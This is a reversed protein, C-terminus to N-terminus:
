ISDLGWLFGKALADWASDAVPSHPNKMGLAMPFEERKAAISSILTLQESAMQEPTLLLLEDIRGFDMISAALGVIGKPTSSGWEHIVGVLDAGKGVIAFSKIAPGEREVFLYTEPISLLKQFEEATRELSGYSKQRLRLLDTTLELSYNPPEIYTFSDAALPTCSARLLLFRNERGLSTFGLKQYFEILDSWLVILSLDQDVMRKQIEKFLCHMVGRGRWSKETAVNGVLGIKDTKKEATTKFNRVQLSAHSVITGSHLACYSTSRSDDSNTLLLPYEDVISFNHHYERLSDQLLKNREEILAAPTVLFKLNEPENTMHHNYGYVLHNSPPM